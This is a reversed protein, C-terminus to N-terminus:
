LTVPDMRVLIMQQYSPHQLGFKMCESLFGKIQLHSDHVLARYHDAGMVNFHELVRENWQDPPPLASVAAQLIKRKNSYLYRAIVM